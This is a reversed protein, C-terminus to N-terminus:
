SKNYNSDFNFPVLYGGDNPYASSVRIDRSDDYYSTKGM